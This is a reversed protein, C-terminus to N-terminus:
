EYAAVAIPPPVIGSLPSWDAVTLWVMPALGAAPMFVRVIGLWGAVFDVAAAPALGHWPSDRPPASSRVHASSDLLWTQSAAPTTAIPITPIAM